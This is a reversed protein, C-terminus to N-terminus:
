NEQLMWRLSNRHHLKDRTSMDKLINPTPLPSPLTSRQVAKFHVTQQTFHNQVSGVYNSCCVHM